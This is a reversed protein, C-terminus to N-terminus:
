TINRERDHREQEIIAWFLSITSRYKASVMVASNKLLIWGLRDTARVIREDPRGQVAALSFRFITGDTPNPESWLQGGHAEVMRRCISLGLGM